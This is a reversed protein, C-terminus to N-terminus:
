LLPTRVRTNKKEAPKRFLLFIGLSRDTTTQNIRAGANISESDERAVCVVVSVFCSSLCVFLCVFFAAM